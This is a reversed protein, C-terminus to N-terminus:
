AKSMVRLMLLGVLGMVVVFGALVLWLVRVVAADLFYGLAFLIVGLALPILPLWRFARMCHGMMARMMGGADANMVGMVRHMMERKEHASMGACCEKMMRCMKETKDERAAEEPM